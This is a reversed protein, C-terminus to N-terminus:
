APHERDRKSAASALMGALMLACGLIGRLTLIEHLILWGALVAFVAELSMIIAAHAPPSNRQAVVQLTYAIGVSLLGAYLVPIAARSIAQADFKDVILAVILSIFACVAFQTFALKISDVKPSLWGILHVHGAWMFACALVLADGHSVTFKGTGSLLYLGLIAIIAGIWTGTGVRHRWLLGLIPVIIIYLGTIFGAKGATTTLLGMQQFAAGFFVFVGAILGGPIIARIPNGSATQSNNPNKRRLIILPLLVLCGLGFRLTNFVFPGIHDLGAKQAVFASGWIAATLLLLM